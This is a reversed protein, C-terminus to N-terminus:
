HALALIPFLKFYTVFILAFLDSVHLAKKLFCCCDKDHAARRGSYTLCFSIVIIMFVNSMYNITVQLKLSFVVLIVWGFLM